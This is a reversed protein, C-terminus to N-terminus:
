ASSNYKKIWHILERTARVSGFGTADFIRSIIGHICLDADNGIRIAYKAYKEPMISENRRFAIKVINGNEELAAAIDTCIRGTSGTGCEENM